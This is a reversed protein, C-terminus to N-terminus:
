VSSLCSSPEADVVLAAISATAEFGVVVAAFDATRGVRIGEDIDRATGGDEVAQETFSGGALVVENLGPKRFGWGATGLGRRM